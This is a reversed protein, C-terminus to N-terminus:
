CLNLIIHELIAPKQPLPPFFTTKSKHLLCYIGTVAGALYIFNPEVKSHFIVMVSRLVCITMRRTHNM